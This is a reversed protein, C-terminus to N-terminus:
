WCGVHPACPPGSSTDGPGPSPSTVSSRQVGGAPALPSIVISLVVSAAPIGAPANAPASASSRPKRAPVAIEYEPANGSVAPSSTMAFPVSVVSRYGTLASNEIITSGFAPSAVLPRSACVPMDASPSAAAPAFPRYAASSQM